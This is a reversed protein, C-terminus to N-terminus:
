PAFIPSEAGPIAEGNEVFVAGDPDPIIEPAPAPEPEPAPAPERPFVPDGRKAALEQSFALDFAQTDEFEPVGGLRTLLAPSPDNVFYRTM